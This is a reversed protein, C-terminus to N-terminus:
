TTEQGGSLLEGQAVQGRIKNDKDCESRIEDIAYRRREKETSGPVNADINERTDVIPSVTDEEKLKKKSINRGKAKSGPKTPKDEDIKKNVKFVAVKVDFEKLSEWIEKDEDKILAPAVKKGKDNKGEETSSGNSIGARKTEDCLTVNEGATESKKAVAKNKVNREKAGVVSDTNRIENVVKGRKVDELSGTEIVQKNNFKEKNTEKGEEGFDSGGNVEKNPDQYFVEVLAERDHETM